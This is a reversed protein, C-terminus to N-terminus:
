GALDVLCGQKGCHTITLYIRNSLLILLSRIKLRTPLFTFLSESKIISIVRPAFTIRYAFPMNTRPAM